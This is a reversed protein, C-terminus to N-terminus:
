LHPSNKPPEQGPQLKSQLQYNALYVNKANTDVAKVLNQLLALTLTAIGAQFGLFLLRIESLEKESVSNSM